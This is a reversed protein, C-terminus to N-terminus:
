KAKEKLWRVFWDLAAQRQAPTVAHGVPEVIIRLREPTGADRFAKEAAAFALKAGGLPCNGDKEGNLILLARGAFLRLMSPGDFQDLIGPLIKNWLARCVKQNVAKEGLDAAAAQHAAKITNARGQWKDNDLSWRFSQVGIAPVAVKIREDAAAALWTEVGGKSFGILGVRGGDLFPLTKVFDVTRWVDWVTDYYFPHEMPEGPKTRWARIIAANYEATGKGTKRAGHYRGDIAVGAIGRKALERMFGMQGEKTGGTGHLCIVVPLKGTVGKPWVVLAPVRETTGDAKKESAFSYSVVNLDGDQKVPGAKVDLDVKPRDLLKKFAARVEAPPPYAPQAGLGPAALLLLALSLCRKM